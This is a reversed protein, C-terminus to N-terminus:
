LLSIVHWSLFIYERDRLPMVKIEKGGLHRKCFRYEKAKSSQLRPFQKVRVKCYHGLNGGHPASNGYTAFSIKLWFLFNMGRFTFSALLKSYIAMVGEATRHSEEQNNFLCHMSRLIFFPRLSYSCCHLSHM